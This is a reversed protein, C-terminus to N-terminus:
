LKLSVSGDKVEVAVLQGIEAGTIPMKVLGMESLAMCRMGAVTYEQKANELNAITEVKFLYTGNANPLKKKPNDKAAKAKEAKKEEAVLQKEAAKREAEQKKDAAKKEAVAKKEAAKDDAKKKAAAKKDDAKKKAAATQAATKGKKKAAM